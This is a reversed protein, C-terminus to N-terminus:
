HVSPKILTENNRLYRLFRLVKEGTRYHKHKTHIKIDKRKIINVYAFIQGISNFHTIPFVFVTGYNLLSRERSLSGLLLRLACRTTGPKDGGKGTVGGGM